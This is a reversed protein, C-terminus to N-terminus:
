WRRGHPVHHGLDVARRDGRSPLGPEGPRGPLQRRSRPQHHGQVATPQGRRDRPQGHPGGRHQPEGARRGRAPRHHDSPRRLHRPLSKHFSIIKADLDARRVESPLAPRDQAARWRYYGAASVELLRAMRTIEFNACEAAMLAFREAKTSEFRLVRCSKGSLGPGQGARRGPPAAAVARGAGGRTLPEDSGGAVTEMRRREDRVWRALSSDVVSLEAAVEAMTRGTDIVRHAAETKFELTFKRRTIGM